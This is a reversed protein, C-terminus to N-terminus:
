RSSTPYADEIMKHARILISGKLTPDFYNVSIGARERSHKVPREEIIGKELLIEEPEPNDGPLLMGKRYISVADFLDM